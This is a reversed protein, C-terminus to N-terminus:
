KEFVDVPMQFKYFVRNGKLVINPVPLVTLIEEWKVDFVDNEDIKFLTGNENCIKLFTVRIEGEEEDFDSSCVAAYRYQKGNIQYEVLVFDGNKVTMAENDTANSLNTSTQPIMKNQVDDESDTYVTAVDLKNTNNQTYTIHGLHFHSCFNSCFCSLSKMFLKDGILRKMTKNKIKNNIM